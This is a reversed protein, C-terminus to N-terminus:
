EIPTVVINRFSVKGHDGQLMLPGPEGEYAGIAGGTIGDLRGKEIIPQGNLSVSLERGILTIDCTQWEGAPKSVNQRPALRSYVAGNGHPEVPRGHDDLIQVEYRGRLYIGSNSRKDVNFELHLQFDKFTKESVLDMGPQSNILVGDKAEWGMKKAQPDRLKWGQLTKGDFLAIPKGPKGGAARLEPARRGEFHFAKGDPNQVTGVLRDEVLKARYTTEKQGDRTVIRIEGEKVEVKNAPVVSGWRWVLSAAPAGEHQDVDWWCANFTTGTDLLMINWRGRYEELGPERDAGCAALALALTFSLM